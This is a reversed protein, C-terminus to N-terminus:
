ESLYSILKQKLKLLDIIYIRQYIDRKKVFFKVNLQMILLVFIVDFLLCKNVDFGLIMFVFVM